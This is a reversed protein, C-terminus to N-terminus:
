RLTRPLILKSRKGSDEVGFLAGVALGISLAVLLDLHFVARLVYVSAAATILFSPWSWRRM